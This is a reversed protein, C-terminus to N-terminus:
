PQEPLTPLVHVTKTSIAQGCLPCVPRGKLCWSGICRHHFVHLCALERIKHRAKISDLCIACTLVSSRTAPTSTQSIERNRRWTEARLLPTVEDLIQVSNEREFNRSEIDTVPFIYRTNRSDNATRRGSVMVMIILFACISLLPMLRAWNSTFQRCPPFCDWKPNEDLISQNWFQWKRPRDSLLAPM